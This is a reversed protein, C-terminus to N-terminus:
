WLATATSRARANSRARATRAIATAAGGVAGADVDGHRGVQKLKSAIDADRRLLHIGEPFHVESTLCCLTGCRRCLCAVATVTAVAAAARVLRAGLLRLRFRLWLCRQRVVGGSVGCM